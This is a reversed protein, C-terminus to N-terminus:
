AAPAQTLPAPVDAAVTIVHEVADGIVGAVRASLGALQGLTLGTIAEYRLPEEVSNRKNVARSEM